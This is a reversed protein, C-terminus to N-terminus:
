GKYVKKLDAMTYLGEEENLFDFTNGSSMLQQMGKLLEAEEESELYKM